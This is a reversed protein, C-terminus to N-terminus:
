AVPMAMREPIAEPAASTPPAPAALDLPKPYGVLYGQVWDYGDERLIELQTVTEVGEACVEMGLQRGLKLVTAAVVRSRSNVCLDQVFSRDLKITDFPFASLYGLASYGTGFDDLALRVGLAKLNRMQKATAPNSELLVRETVEIELRAANFGSQDLARQVIQSIQDLSFWGAWVNVSVILDAPLLRAQQCAEHLVWSDLAEIMGRDEAVPIFDCPPVMGHGPRDWRLLVEYGRLIGTAPAIIPQWHLHFGNSEIAAALDFELRRQGLLDQEEVLNFVNYCNGGAQKAQYLATDARHMFQIADQADDPYFASGLSVKVHMIQDDIVFPALFATIIRGALSCLHEAVVPGPVLIAMEDGSLRAVLDTDRVCTKLRRAAEVLVADGAPHGYRDNIEKFHDIDLCIVACSTGAETKGLVEELRVEFPGRNLLGTLYDCNVANSLAMVTQHLALVAEVGGALDALLKVKDESIRRPVHDAVFLAGLLEGNQDHLAIGAYFRIHPEGVAFQKNAFRPDLLTDNIVLPRNPQRIVQDCFSGERANDFHGFGIISKFWQRHEDLLSIAAIPVKFIQSALRTFIDFRALASADLINCARLAALRAAGHSTQPPDAQVAPVGHSRGSTEAGAQRTMAKGLELSKETSVILSQPHHEM